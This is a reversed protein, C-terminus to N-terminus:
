ISAREFILDVQGKPRVDPRITGLALLKRMIEGYKKDRAYFHVFWMDPTNAWGCNGVGSIANFSQSNIVDLVTTVDKESMIFSRYKKFLM